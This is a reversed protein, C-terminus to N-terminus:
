EGQATDQALAARGAVWRYIRISGQRHVETLYARDALGLADEDDLDVAIHTVHHARALTTFVAMDDRLLSALLSDREAQLRLADLYPNTFLPHTAVVNRGAASILSAALENSCLVVDDEGVQGVLYRHTGPDYTDRQDAGIGNYHLRPECTETWVLYNATVGAFVVTAILFSYRMLGARGFLPLNTIRPAMVQWLWLVGLGFFCALLAKIFYFFHYSPMVLMPIWTDRKLLFLESGVSSWLFLLCALAFATLLLVDQPLRRRMCFVMGMTAILTPLLPFQLLALHIRKLGLPPYIWAFETNRWEGGYAVWLPFLLVSAVGLFPLVYAVGRHLLGRLRDRAPFATHVEHLWLVATTGGLVMAAGPHGLFVLGTALGAFLWRGMTSNGRALPLLMALVLFFPGMMANIPDMLPSLGVESYSNLGSHLWWLFGALAAMGGIRGLLVRAALVFLILSVLNFWPGGKASLTIIPIGSVAQVLALTAPVLPPYWSTQGAHIPDSGYRGEAIRQAHGTNRLHDPDRPWNCEKVWCVAPKLALALLVACVTLFLLDRQRANM